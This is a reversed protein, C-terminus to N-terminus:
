AAWTTLWTAFRMWADTGSLLIRVPYSAILIIAGVLFIVNLKRNRWTDYVLLGIAVVAPVGFFFLPGLSQLSAVPFRGLSPPLFNLVTLLMLRKHNAPRKRYLIAGGFFLAFLAIDFIPVVLFALPPFDPPTSPSGYKAGAVGTFFGVAVMASGLVIGFFGTKMHVRANNSRILWVQAIFFGIWLTMLLGHVHVLLSPVPPTGFALKLYYTRAFGILVVVPFLLAVLGFLRRDSRRWDFPENMAM